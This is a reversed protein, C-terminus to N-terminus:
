GNANSPQPPKAVARPNQFTNPEATALFAGVFQEAVMVSTSFQQYQKAAMTQVDSERLLTELSLCNRGSEPSRTASVWGFTHLLYPFPSMASALDQQVKLPQPLSASDGSFREPCGQLFGSPNEAVPLAHKSWEQGDPAVSSWVQVSSSLIKVLYTGKSQLRQLRDKLDGAVSSELCDGCATNFRVAASGIGAGCCPGFCGELKCLKQIELSWPLIVFPPNGPLECVAEQALM